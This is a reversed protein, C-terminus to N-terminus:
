EVHVCGFANKSNKRVVLDRIKSKLIRQWKNDMQPSCAWGDMWEWEVGNERMAHLFSHAVFLNRGDWQRMQKADNGM